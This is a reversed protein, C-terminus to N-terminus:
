VVERVHGQEVHFVKRGWPGELKRTGTIWVQCCTELASELVASCNAADFESALDDLLVLPKHGTSALVRVQTMLLAAAFMKQEGRSFVARIPTRGHHFALEARHPGTLTAGRELDRERGAKLAELYNDGAWGTRYEIRIDTFGTHLERFLEEIHGAISEAHARRMAGLDTGAEALVEDLSDLVAAQGSRLAVNRQKLARSFRRWTELFRPEVHFMGWDLYKRRYDPTGSVLLHSEPEMLVLPLVRTLQSMQSLDVGDMRARWYKGSRELGLRHEQAAGEIQAFVSFSKKEPGVLESAQTTRYSRGRSLVVLSELVSSKGAGNDGMLLNLCDHPEISVHALNRLNDIQLKKVILTNSNSARSRASGVGM